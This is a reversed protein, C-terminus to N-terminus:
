AVADVGGAVTSSPQVPKPSTVQPEPVPDAEHGIVPLTSIQTPQMLAHKEYMGNEYVFLPATEPRAPKVRKASISQKSFLAMQRRKGGGGDGGGMKDRRRKRRMRMRAACQESHYKKGPNVPDFHFTEACDDAACILREM